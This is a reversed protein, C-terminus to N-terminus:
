YCKKIIWCPHVNQWKMLVFYFSAHCHLLYNPHNKKKNFFKKKKLFNTEFSIDKILLCKNTRSPCPLWKVKCIIFCACSNPNSMIVKGDWVDCTRCVNFINQKLGNLIDNLFTLSTVIYLFLWMSNSLM